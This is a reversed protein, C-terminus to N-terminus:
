GHKNLYWFINHVNELNGTDNPTSKTENVGNDDDNDSNNAACEGICILWLMRDVCIASYILSFLSLNVQFSWVSFKVHEVLLFSIMKVKCGIGISNIHTCYFFLIRTSHNTNARTVIYLQLMALFNYMKVRNLESYSSTDSMKWIRNLILLILHHLYM